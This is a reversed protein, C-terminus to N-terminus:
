ANKEEVSSADIKDYQAHTGFFKIFVAKLAYSVGVILRYDNGKINFVVRNGELFSASSFRDKIDQPSAWNSRRVVTEWQALAKKAAPYLECYRRLTSVAIIRMREIIDWIPVLPCEVKELFKFRRETHRADHLKLDQRGNGRKAFIPVTDCECGRLRGTRLSSAFFCPCRFVASARIFAPGGLGLWAAAEGRDASEQGARSKLDFDTNKVPVNGFLVSDTLLNKVPM